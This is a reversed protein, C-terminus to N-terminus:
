QNETHILDRDLDLSERIYLRFIHSGACEHTVFADTNARVIWQAVSFKM